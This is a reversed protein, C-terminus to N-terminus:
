GTVYQTVKIVSFTEAPASVPEIGSVLKTSYCLWYNAKRIAVTLSFVFNAKEPTESPSFTCSPEYPLPLPLTTGTSRGVSCSAIFACQLLPPVAGGM